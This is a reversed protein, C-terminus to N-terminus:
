LLIDIGQKGAYWFISIKHVTFIRTDFWYNIFILISYLFATLTHMGWLAKRMSATVPETCKEKWQLTEAIVCTSLQYDDSCDLDTSVSGLSVPSRCCWFCHLLSATSACFRSDAGADWAQRHRFCKRLTCTASTLVDFNCWCFTLFTHTQTLSLSLMSLSDPNTHLILNSQWWWWWIRNQYKHHQPQGPSRPLCCGAVGWVREGHITVAFEDTQLPLATPGVSCQLHSCWIEAHNQHAHM